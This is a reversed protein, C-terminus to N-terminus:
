GRPLHLCFVGEVGGFGGAVLSTRAGVSGGLVRAVHAGPVGDTSAVFVAAIAILVVGLPSLAMFLGYWHDLTAFTVALIGHPAVHRVQILWALRHVLVRTKGSGAGALVLTHTSETTVAERQVDNLEDLIHSVDEM